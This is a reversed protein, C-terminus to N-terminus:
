QGSREQIAGVSKLFEELYERPPSEPPPKLGLIVPKFHVPPNDKGPPCSVMLLYTGAKLNLYQQIGEGIEKGNIDTVRCSLRDADAKLAIGVFGDQKLNFSFSRTQGPGLLTLPGVKDGVPIASEIHYCFSAGNSSLARVGIMYDGRTLYRHISCNRAGSAAQLIKTGDSVAILSAGSCDILLVSPSSLSVLFWGEGSKLVNVTDAELTEASEPLSGWRALGNDGKRQLWAEVLGPPHHLLAVGTASTLKISKGTIVTGDSGMWECESVGSTRLTYDGPSIDGTNVNLKFTGFSDSLKAFPGSSDLVSKEPAEGSLLSISWSAKRSTMNFLSLKQSDTWVNEFLAENSNCFLKVPRGDKWFVALIGKDISLKVTKGGKPLTTEEALNGGIDGANFGPNLAVKEVDKASYNFLKVYFLDPNDISPDAQWLVAQLDESTEKAVSICSHGAIVTSAPFDPDGNPKAFACAPRGSMSFTKLVMYGSISSPLDVRVPRNDVPRITFPKKRNSFLHVRRIKTTFSRGTGGGPNWMLWTEGATLPVLSSSAAKLPKGLCDSISLDESPEIRFTGARPISLRALSIGEGNFSITTPITNDKWTEVPTTELPRFDVKLKASFAQDDSSWLKLKLSSGGKVPIDISCNHGTTQALISGNDRNDEVILGFSGFGETRIGLLGPNDPIQLPFSAIRHKLHVSRDTPLELQPGAREESVEMSIKTRGARGSAPDVDLEYQGAKLRRSILFNWDNYADDNQAIVNRSPLEVLKARTDVDGYSYLKVISEKALSVKVRSPINVRQSIGAALEDTSVEVPYAVLDSDRSCKVALRYTGPELTGKWVKRPWVSDIEKFGGGEAKREIAAQMLTQGLSISVNLPAPIKFLYLDAQDRENGKHWVNELKHNLALQHPGRGKIEAKGSVRTLSSIRTTEVPYPLTMISYEGRSFKLTQDATATPSIIPWNDSDEIRCKFSKDLGLTKIRYSSADDTITFNHVVASDTPVLDKVIKGPLLDDGRILETKRVILGAHGATAGLARVTVQYDGPKLYQQVLCNRGVGGAQDSFLVPMTRTRVTCGTKLLGTTEIRYLAPSDIHLLATRRGQREIDFFYPKNETVVPFNIKEALVLPLTDPEYYPKEYYPNVKVSFLFSKTGKNVATLTHKGPGFSKMVSGSSGDLELALENKGDPNNIELISSGSSVFHIQLRQGPMLGVPLARKLKLPLRRIIVDWDVGPQKNVWLVWDYSYSRSGLTIEPFQCWGKVPNFASQEEENSSFAKKVLSLFPSGEKSISLSIIGKKVPNIKLWYFGKELSFTHPPNWFPPSKYHPPYSTLFPEFKCSCEVGTTNVTYNGGDKIEVILTTMSLLNFRRAWPSKLGIEITSTAVPRMYKVYYEPTIIATAGINDGIFGTHVTSVWYRGVPLGHFKYYEHPKMAQIEYPHDPPGEVSVLSYNNKDTAYGVVKCEPEISKKSIAASFTPSDPLRTEDYASVGLTFPEKKETYLYFHNSPGKVRYLDEGFPSVKRSSRLVPDLEPIGYRFYLPSSPDNGTWPKPPGGYSVVLYKGPNLTAVIRCDLMDHGSSPTITKISPKYTTLWSGNLWLRMDALARGASELYISRRKKIVLWYSVSQFDSLTDSRSDFEEIVPVKDPNKDISKRAFIKVTGSGNASSHTIIKYTGKDLFVDLRGDKTGSIGDSGIPGMM